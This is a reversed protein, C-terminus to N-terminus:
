RTPSVGAVPPRRRLMARLVLDAAILLLQLSILAGLWAYGAAAWQVPLLHISQGPGAELIFGPGYHSTRYILWVECICLAALAIRVLWLAARM